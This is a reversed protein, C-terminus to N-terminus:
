KENLFKEVDDALKDAKDAIKQASDYNKEAYPNAMPDSYPIPNNFDIQPVYSRPVTDYESKNPDKQEQQGNQVPPMFPQNNNNVEQVPPMFPENYSPVTEGQVAPSQNPTATPYTQTQVTDTPKVGMVKQKVLNNNSLTNLDTTGVNKDAGPIPMISPGPYLAAKRAAEKEQEEKIKEPDYPKGFIASTVGSFLKDVVPAFAFMYLGFRLPYGACNRLFNPMKRGLNSMMRSFKGKEAANLATEKFPAFQELGVSIFKGLNVGLKTFWSQKGAVNKLAKVAEKETKYAAETLFGGAKAKADFAAKATRYAEVQAKSLGTYQLGGVKHMAGLAIPMSVVWSMAELLGSAITGAKQDKPADFANKVSQGMMFAIFLTNFTGGGFTLGRMGLKAMKPLFRGLKTKPAHISKIKNLVQSLKPSFAKAKELASELKAAVKTPDKKITGYTTGNLGVAKLKVNRLTNAKYGEKLDKISKIRKKVADRMPDDKALTGLYTEYRQLQQGLAAERRAITNLIDPGGMKTLQFEQIAAESNKIRGLIDTGFKTKLADIEAKTAGAEKLSKPTKEIFKDLKGAAEKIDAEAQTEMFSKPMSNEPKTPTKDMASLMPHKDIFAQFNRKITSGTTKLNEVFSNRVLKTGSVRDGFKGLRGVLSKEYEGGCVKDFLKTGENLVFWTPIIYAAKELPNSSTQEGQIPQSQYTDATPTTDVANPNGKMSPNYPRNNELKGTDNASVQTNAINKVNDIM